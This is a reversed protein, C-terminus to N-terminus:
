LKCFHSYFQKNIKLYQEYHCPEMLTTFLSAFEGGDQYDCKALMCALLKDYYAYLQKCMQKYQSRTVSALAAHKFYGCVHDFDIDAWDRHYRFITFDIVREPNGVPVTVSCYLSYLAVKTDELKRFYYPITVCLINGIFHISPWGAALEAPISTRRFSSANVATLIEAIHIEKM